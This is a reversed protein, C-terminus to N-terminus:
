TNSNKGSIPPLVTRETEVDLRTMRSLGTGMYEKHGTGSYLKVSRKEAKQGIGQASCLFSCPALHCRVCLHPPVSTSESKHRKSRAKDHENHRGAATRQPKAERSILGSTTLVWAGFEPKLTSTGSSNRSNRDEPSPGGGSCYFASGLGCLM